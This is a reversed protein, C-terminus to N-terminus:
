ATVLGFLSEQINAIDEAGPPLNGIRKLWFHDSATLGQTELKMEVPFLSFYSLQRLIGVLFGTKDAGVIMAYLSGNHRPSVELRYEALSISPASRYDVPKGFIAPVDLSVLDEPRARRPEIEFEAAWKLVSTKIASGRIIGIDQQALASALCGAWGSPLTGNLELLAVGDLPRIAYELNKAPSAHHRASGTQLSTTTM